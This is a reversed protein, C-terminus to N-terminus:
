TGEVKILDLDQDDNKSSSGTCGTCKKRESQVTGVTEVNQEKSNNENKASSSAESPEEKGSSMKEANSADCLEEPVSKFRSDKLNQLEMNTFKEQKRKWITGGTFGLFFFLSQIEGLTQM